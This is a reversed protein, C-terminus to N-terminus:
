APSWGQSGGGGYQNGGSSSTYVAGRDSNYDSVQTYTTGGVNVTKPQGGGVSFDFGQYQPVPYSIAGSSALMGGGSTPTTSVPTIAAKQAKQAQIAALQRARAAEARAAEEQRAKEVLAAAKIEDSTSYKGVDVGYQQALKVAEEVNQSSLAVASQQQEEQRKLADAYSESFLRPDWNNGATYAFSPAFAAGQAGAGGFLGTVPDYLSSFQGGKGAMLAQSVIGGQTAPNDSDSMFGGLLRHGITGLIGDDRIYDETPLSDAMGIGHMWGLKDKTEMTRLVEDDTMGGEKLSAMVLAADADSGMYKRLKDKQDQTLQALSMGPFLLSIADDLTPAKGTLRDVAGQLNFAKKAEEEGLGEVLTEGRQSELFRQESSKQEEESVGGTTVSGAKGGTTLAAEEEVSQRPVDMLGSTGLIGGERTKNLRAYYDYLSEGEQMVWPSYDIRPTAM